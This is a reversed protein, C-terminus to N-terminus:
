GDTSDPCPGPDKCGLPAPAVACNPFPFPIEVEGLFQWTLEYIPDAINVGDTGNINAAEMCGPEEGGLFLYKLLFTADSMDVVGDGNADGRLFRPGPFHVYGPLTRPEQEIGGIVLAVEVPPNGLTSTYRIQYSQGTAGGLGPEFEVKLLDHGHDAPLTEFPEETSIVAAMIVGGGSAARQLFLFDPGAGENFKSATTDDITAEVVQVSDPDGALGFSWGQVEDVTDALCVLSPGPVPLAIDPGDVIVNPRPSNSFYLLNREPPGEIVVQCRRAESRHGDRMAIVQYTYVGPGPPFDRWKQATGEIEELVENNRVLLIADYEGGLEWVLIVSPAANVAEDTSSVACRLDEVPPVPRHGVQVRCRAPESPRDTPSVGIVEYVHEGRPPNFDRYIMKDGALAAIREGNRKIIIAGYRVPNWWRLIVADLPRDIIGAADERNAAPDDHNLRIQVYECTLERPPPVIVPPLEVQCRAPRTAIDGVIGFVEYTVVGGERPTDDYHTADGPLRAIQRNNRSIIIRDFPQPNVWSLSVFPFGIIQDVRGDGDTDIADPNEPDIPHPGPEIVPIAVACELDRVPEPPGGNGDVGVRCAAIIRVPAGGTGLDMYVQYLYRGPEPVTDVFTTDQTKDLLEGDRLVTFFRSAIEPLPLHSWDLHVDLEDVRTKVGFCDVDVACRGVSIESDDITIIFVEYVHTGVSFVEDEYSLQDAPVTAIPVGNRRIRFSDYAVRLFIPGWELKVHNEEARCRVTRDRDYEVECSGVIWVPPQVIDILIEGPRPLPFDIPLPVAVLVYRHVGPDLDRDFYESASAPLTAIKEGNRLIEFGRIPAFFQINWSLHVGTNGVTCTLAGPEIIDIPGGPDDQALAHSGAPLLWLGLLLALGTGTPALFKRSHRM